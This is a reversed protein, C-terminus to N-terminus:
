IPNSKANHEKKWSEWTARLDPGIYGEMVRFVEETTMSQTKRLEFAALARGKWLEVAERWAQLDTSPLMLVPHANHEGIHSYRGRIGSSEYEGGVMEREDKPYVRPRPMFSNASYTTSGQGPIFGGTDVGYRDGFSEGLPGEAQYQRAPMTYEFETSDQYNLNMNQISDVLPGM